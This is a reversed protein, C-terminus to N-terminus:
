MEVFKDFKGNLNRDQRRRILVFAGGALVSALILSGIVIGAVAGGSLGSEEESAATDGSADSISAPSNPAPRSPPRPSLAPPPSNEEPPVPTGFRNGTIVSENVQSIWAPMSGAFLNNSLDLVQLSPFWSSGTSNDAAAPIQGYLSNDSV